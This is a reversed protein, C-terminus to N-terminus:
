FGELLFKIKTELMEKDFPKMLYENAGALIADIVSKQQNETTVMMVKIDSWKPNARLKLLFEYGNMVPMHWDLLILQVDPHENLVKLAEEGNEAELVEFGMEELYKREIQRIASSDDVVMAKKM